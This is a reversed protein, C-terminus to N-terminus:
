NKTKHTIHVEPYPLSELTHKVSQQAEDIFGVEPFLELIIVTTIDFTVRKISHTRTGLYTIPSHKNPPPKPPTETKNTQKAKLIYVSALLDM